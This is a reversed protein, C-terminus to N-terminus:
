GIRLQTGCVRCFRDGPAARKGCQHCYINEDQGEGAEKKAPSRSRFRRVNKAASTKHGSQWYWFGGGVILLLGFAGMVWPLVTAMTVRGATSDDLAGGPSVPMSGASLDDSSKDYDLTLGFTQGQTLVGVQQTFYVLGNAAAEGAGLSPSIKMNSAGVPQQVEITLADVAYDGPWRFEFHRAAGNKVLGPDYYEIQLEPATASFAVSSWGSGVDQQNFPLNVLSGDPQKVAVANPAGAGSPLRLTIEAPLQVESSLTIRYIVLMTPRDFEPWLDVEVAAMKVASQAEVKGPLLLFLVLAVLFRLKLSGLKQFRHSKLM